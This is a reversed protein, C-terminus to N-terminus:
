RERAFYVSFLRGQRDLTVSDIEQPYGSLPSVAVLVKDCPNAGDTTSRKETQMNTTHMYLSDVGLCADDRAQLASVRVRSMEQESPYCIITNYIIYFTLNIHVSCINNYQIKRFTIKNYKDPHNMHRLVSRTKM